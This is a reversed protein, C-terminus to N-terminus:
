RSLGDSQRKGNKFGRVVKLVESVAKDCSQCCSTQLIRYHSYNFKQVGFWYTADIIGSQSRSRLNM